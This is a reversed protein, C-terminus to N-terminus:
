FSQSQDRFDVYDPFSSPQHTLFIPQRPTQTYVYVLRDPESVPLPRFLIANVMSFTATNLGIGLALTLAAVLTFGPNKWLMRWGFKVDRWIGEM